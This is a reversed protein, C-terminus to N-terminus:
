ASLVGRSSARFAVVLIWLGRCCWRGSVSGRSGSRSTRAQRRALCTSPSVSATRSRRLVCLEQPIQPTRSRMISSPQQPLLIPHLHRLSLFPVHENQLTCITLRLHLSSSPPFITCLLHATFANNNASSPRHTRQLQTHTPAAQALSIPHM